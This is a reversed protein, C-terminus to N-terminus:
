CWGSTRARAIPWEALDLGAGAGVGRVVALARDPVHAAPRDSYFTYGTSQFWQYMRAGDEGMAGRVAETPLQYYNLPKGTIRSLVAIAQNGSLEDAGLDYRKGAHAAGDELVAM